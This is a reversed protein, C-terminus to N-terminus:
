RCEKILYSSPSTLLNDAAGDQQNTNNHRGDQQQQKMQLHNTESQGRQTTHQQTDPVLNAATRMWYSSGPTLMLNPNLPQQLSHNEKSGSPSVDGGHVRRGM